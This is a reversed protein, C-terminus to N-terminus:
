ATTESQSAFIATLLPFVLRDYEDISFVTNADNRKSIRNKKFDRIISM